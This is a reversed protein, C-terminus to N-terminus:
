VEGQQGYAIRHSTHISYCGCDPGCQQILFKGKKLGNSLVYLVALDLTPKVAAVFNGTIVLYQDPYQSYLEEQHALFYEFEKSM